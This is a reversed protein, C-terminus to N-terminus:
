SQAGKRRQVRKRRDLDDQNQHKGNQLNSSGTTLKKAEDAMVKIDAVSIPLKTVADQIEPMVTQLAATTAANGGLFLVQHGKSGPTIVLRIDGGKPSPLTISLRRTLKVEGSKQQQLLAQNARNLLAKAASSVKQSGKTRSGFESKYSGKIQESENSKSQQESGSRSQEGGEEGASADFERDKLGVSEGKQFTSEGGNRDTPAHQGEGQVNRANLLQEIRLESRQGRNNSEMKIDADEATVLRDAEASELRVRQSERNEVAVQNAGAGNKKSIHKLVYDVIRSIPDPKADKSVEGGYSHLWRESSDQNEVKQNWDMPSAEAKQAVAGQLMPEVNKGLEQVTEVEKALINETPAVAEAEDALEAEAFVEETGEVPAELDGFTVEREEVSSAEKVAKVAEPKESRESAKVERGSKAAEDQNQEENARGSEVRKSEPAESRNEQRADQRVSDRDNNSRSEVRTRSSKDRSRDGGSDKRRAPANLERAVLDSERGLEPAQSFGQRAQLATQSQMVGSFVAALTEQDELSNERAGPFPNANTKRADPVISISQFKTM